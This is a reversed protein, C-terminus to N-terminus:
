MKGKKWHDIIPVPLHVRGGVFVARGREGRRRGGQGPDVVQDVAPVGRGVRRRVLPAVPEAM